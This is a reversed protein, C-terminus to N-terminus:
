ESFDVEQQLFNRLAIEIVEARSMDQRAAYADVKDVLSEYTLVQIRKTKRERKVTPTDDCVDAQTNTYVDKTEPASTTLDEMLGAFKSERKVNKAM